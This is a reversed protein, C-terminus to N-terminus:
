HLVAMRRTATFSGTELRYFYIGPSIKMGTDNTGNWSTQHAGPGLTKSDVLTKVARGSVDYISLRVATERGLTYRITTSEGFPNPRCVHLTFGPEAEAVEGAGSIDYETVTFRQDAAVMVTDWVMGTPWTIELTDVVASDRLGFEVLASNQSCYGSGTGVERM